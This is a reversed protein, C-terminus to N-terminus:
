LRAPKLSISTSSHRSVQNFRNNISTKPVGTIVLTVRCTGAIVNNVIYLGNDDTKVNAGGNEAEIGVDAGQIPHGKAGRVFGELASNGASANAIFLMVGVFGIRFSKIFM